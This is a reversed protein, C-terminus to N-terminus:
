HKDFVMVKSLFALDSSVHHLGADRFLAVLDSRAYDAYYPEHFAYPFTELLGDKDPADGLQLSDVVILRGGPRLVRAFEAAIRPHEARPVEHLLYTCTLADVGGAAVPLSEALGEIYHVGPWRRLQRRAEALYARSLDLAMVPLRPHNDKVFTLFRGTGCGVDLLRAHSVDRERLFANLPVLAQRRMADASGLFLVEVQHDYLRASRDSLYGGTQFHFNQLYYDPLGRADAVDDVIGLRRRASVEPLDRFHAAAQGLLRRPDQVLDHPMRYVGARINFWDRQLLEVLDFLLDSLSPFTRSAPRARAPRRVVRGSLRSSLRWQWLYWSVRAGQSIWYAPGRLVGRPAGIRDESRSMSAM